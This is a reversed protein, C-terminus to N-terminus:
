KSLAELADNDFNNPYYTLASIYGSFQGNKGDGIKLQNVPKTITNKQTNPFRLTGNLGCNTGDLGFSWVARAPVGPVYAAINENIWDGSEPWLYFQNPSGDTADISHVIYAQGPGEFGYVSGDTTPTIPSVITTATTVVTGIQSLFVSSFDTGSIGVVDAARTVSATTSTNPIFSSPFGGEELQSGWVYM